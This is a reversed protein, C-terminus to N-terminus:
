TLPNPVHRQPREILRRGARDDVDPDQGCVASVAVHVLQRGARSVGRAGAAEPVDQRVHVGEVDGHQGGHAVGAVVGVRPGPMDPVITPCSGLSEVPQV